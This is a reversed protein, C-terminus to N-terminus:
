DKLCRISLGTVNPNDWRFVGYNNYRLIRNYAREANFYTSSWFYAREQPLSFSGDWDRFGGPLANFGFNNTGNGGSFWGTTHRLNLGANFGRWATGDWEPDPYAYLSDVEGELQKWEEDAPLHWGPPCIGQVGATIHYDMMENWQYLGGYISCNDEIDNYCYKEIVTNNTQNGSGDIKTGINLNEAMWCQTGIQVTTYIQGGYEFSPIGPCPMPTYHTILTGDNDVTVEYIAGNPSTLTLSGTNLAYPVSILQSTGMFQYNTSGTEDLELKLFSSTTGWNIEDFVGTEITGNGIELVILGFQSTTDSHIESYVNTGNISDQIIGVRISILQDSIVDGSNDRVVAQYKFAHSSQSFCQFLVMILLSLM